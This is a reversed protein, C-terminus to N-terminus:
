NIMGVGLSIVKEFYPLIIVIIEIRGALMLAKAVGVEGLEECLDSGIGFIYGVGIIKLAVSVSEAQADMALGGVTSFLQGINGGVLGLLIIIGLVSVARRSRFGLESLMFGVAACLLGIACLKATM